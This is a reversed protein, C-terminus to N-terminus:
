WNGDGILYIAVFIAQMCEIFLAGLPVNVVKKWKTIKDAWGEGEKSKVKPLTRRVRVGMYYMGLCVCGFLLIPFLVFFVAHYAPSDYMDIWTNRQVNLSVM